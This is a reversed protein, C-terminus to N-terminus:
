KLIGTITTKTGNNEIVDVVRQCFIPAARSAFVKGPHSGRSADAYEKKLYLGGDTELEYFDWLYINDNETDWENRVWQFFLNARVAAAPSTEEEIRAAGTWLLFKTHPFQHLKLKLAQYQLKYNEIKKEPSDIDPKNLDEAIDSVPFCHKFIIMDYKKTLMELTPEELYPQEGAHKVWINYYDYPFKNWGYPKSKPFVEETIQYSKGNSQNYDDFWKPVIFEQGFYRGFINIQSSGGKYIDFGTSHHLFLINFKVGTSVNKTMCQEM